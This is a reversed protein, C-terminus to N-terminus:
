NTLDKQQTENVDIARRKNAHKEFFPNMKLIDEIQNHEAKLNNGTTGGVEFDKELSREVTIVESWIVQSKLNALIKKGLRDCM